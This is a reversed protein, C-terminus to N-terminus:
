QLEVYFYYKTTAIDTGHGNELVLMEFDHASSDFGAPSEEDLISTFIVVHNDPDYLLVEEFNNNVGTNTNDYVRTSICEGESFQLNNTYFLDHSGAGLPVSFTEDVGDVDNAIIGYESELMSLNMGFLNTSGRQATDSDFSGNATFNFCQVNAWAVGSTNVAYVEGEPSALSWNYMVNDSNDALQITGSVNGYYGQWTQTRTYGMITLETVNGAIADYDAPADPPATQNRSYVINAGSPVIAMINAISLIMVVMIFLLLGKVRKM